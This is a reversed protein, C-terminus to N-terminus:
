STKLLMKRRQKRSAIATPSSSCYKPCSHHADRRSAPTQPDQGQCTQEIPSLHAAISQISPTLFNRDCYVLKSKPHLFHEETKGHSAQGM